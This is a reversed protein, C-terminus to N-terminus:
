GARVIKNKIAAITTKDLLKHNESRVEGGLLDALQSAISVMFDFVLEADVPSPLCLFLSIGPTSLQDITDPNFYGPEVMNAVSFLPHGSIMGELGYHHFINMKGFQFGLRELAQVISEGSFQQGYLATVHLVIIEDRRIKQVEKGAAEVSGTASDKKFLDDMAGTEREVIPPEQRTRLPINPLEAEGDKDPIPRIDPLAPPEAGTGDRSRVPISPSTTTAHSIEITSRRKERRRQINDWIFIGAIVAIGLLLLILRLNNM